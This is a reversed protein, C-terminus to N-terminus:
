SCLPSFTGRPMLKFSLTNAFSTKELNLSPSPIIFVSYKTVAAAGIFLSTWLHNWAIPISIVSIYPIVSSVPGAVIPTGPFAASDKEFFNFTSPSSTGLIRLGIPFTPM